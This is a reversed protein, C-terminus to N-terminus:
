ILHHIDQWQESIFTSLVTWTSMLPHCYVIQCDQRSKIDYLHVSSRGNALKMELINTTSKISITVNQKRDHYKLRLNWVQKHAFIKWPGITLGVCQMKLKSNHIDKKLVLSLNNATCWDRTQVSSWQPHTPLASIAPPPAGSVSSDRRRAAWALVSDPMSCYQKRAKASARSTIGKVKASFAPRFGMAVTVSRRVLCASPSSVAPM